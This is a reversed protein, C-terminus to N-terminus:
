RRCHTAARNRTHLLIILIYLYIHCRNYRSINGLRYFIYSIVLYDVHSKHCPLFILSQKKREAEVAAQRVARLESEKIHIGQNYMRVLINNVVFAALRVLRKSSMDAVLADLYDRARRAALNMQKAMETEFKGAIGSSKKGTLGRKIELVASQQISLQSIALNRIARTVRPSEFM